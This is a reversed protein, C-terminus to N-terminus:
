EIEVVSINREECEKLLNRNCCKRGVKLVIMAKIHLRTEKKQMAAFHDYYVNLGAHDLERDFFMSFVTPKLSAKTPVFLFTSCDCNLALDASTQIQVTYHNGYASNRAKCVETIEELFPSLAFNPYDVTTWRSSNIEQLTQHQGQLRKLIPPMIETTM